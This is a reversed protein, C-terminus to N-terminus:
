VIAAAFLKRGIEHIEAFKLFRDLRVVAQFGGGSSPTCRLITGRTEVADSNASPSIRLRVTTGAIFPETALLAVGSISVDVVRCTIERPPEEAESGGEGQEGVGRDDIPIQVVAIPSATPDWNAISDDSNDSVNIPHFPDFSYHTDAAFPLPELEGFDPLRITPDVPGPFDSDTKVAPHHPNTAPKSTTCGFVQRLVKGLTHRDTCAPCETALHSPADDERSNDVRSDGDARHETPLLQADPVPIRILRNHPSHEALTSVLSM